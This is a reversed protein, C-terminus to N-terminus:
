QAADVFQGAVPGGGLAKGADLVLGVVLAELGRAKDFAVPDSAEPLVREERDVRQRDHAAGNYRLPQAHELAINVLNIPVHPRFRFLEIIRRYQPVGQEFRTEIGLVERLQDLVGADLRLQEVHMDARSGARRAARNLMDPDDDGAPCGSRHVVAVDSLHARSVDEVDRRSVVAPHDPILGVDRQMKETRVVVGVMGLLLDFCHLIWYVLADLAPDALMIDYEEHLAGRDERLAAKGAHYHLHQAM